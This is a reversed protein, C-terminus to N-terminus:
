IPRPPPKRNLRLRRPRFQCGQQAQEVVEDFDPPVLGHGRRASPAGREHHAREGARESAGNPKWFFGPGDIPEGGGNCGRARSDAADPILQGVAERGARIPWRAWGAQRM